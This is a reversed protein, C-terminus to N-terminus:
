RRRLDYTASAAMESEGGARFAHEVAATFEQNMRELQETTYAGIDDGPRPIDTWLKSWKPPASKNRVTQAVSVEQPSREYIIRWKAQTRSKGASAL